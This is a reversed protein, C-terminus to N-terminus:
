TSSSSSLKQILGNVYTNVDSKSTPIVTVDYGTGDQHIHDEAEDSNDKSHVYSSSKNSPTYIDPNVTTNGTFKIHNYEGIYYPMGESEGGNAALDIGAGTNEFYKNVAFNTETHEKREYEHPWIRIAM